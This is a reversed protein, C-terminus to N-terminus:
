TYKFNYKHNKKVMLYESQKKTYKNFLKLPIMHKSAVKFKCKKYVRIAIKNKKKVKLFIGHVKKNNFLWDSTKKIVATGIGKGRYLKNGILIGLFFFNNQKDASDFKINGIHKNKRNLFIGFFLTDKKKLENKVYKKLKKITNQKKIYRTVLEDKFWSLYDKKVDSVKLKKFFIKERGINIVSQRDSYYIKIANKIKLKWSKKIFTPLDANYHFSGTKKQKRAIYKKNLIQNIKNLFLKQIEFNLIKYTKSFNDNKKKNIDFLIKKQYIIPVSDLGKNIEHITVGKTTKEIFSWFNPHAGKNFPLFSTHLNIAPRKLRKLINKKIIHRYNFSILLEVNKLDSVSIKRNSCIVKWGKESIAKKLKLNNKIKGLLLCTRAFSM